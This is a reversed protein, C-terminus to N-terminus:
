FCDWRHVVSRPPLPFRFCVQCDEDAVFSLSEEADCLNHDCFVLAKVHRRRLPVHRGEHITVALPPFPVSPPCASSLFPELCEFGDMSNHKPFSFCDIKNQSTNLQWPHPLPAPRHCLPLSPIKHGRVFLHALNFVPFVWPDGCILLPCCKLSFFNSHESLPHPTSNPAGPPYPAPSATHTMTCM